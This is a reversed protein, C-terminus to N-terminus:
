SVLLPVPTASVRVRVLRTKRVSRPVPVIVRFVAREGARGVLRPVSLTPALWVIRSYRLPGM